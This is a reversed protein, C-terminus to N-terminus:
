TEHPGNCIMKKKKQAQSWIHKKDTCIDYNIVLKNSQIKHKEATVFHEM